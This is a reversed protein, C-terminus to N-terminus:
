KRETKGDYIAVLDIIKININNYFYKNNLNNYMYVLLEVIDDYKNHLKYYNDFNCEYKIKYNIQTNSWPLLGTYLHLLMYIISIIDDTKTYIYNDLHCTYSAYLKNGIFTQMERGHNYCSLGLDIICLDGYTDFIFNQPKVDRHLLNRLHFSKILTFLQNIIVIFEYKSVGDDIKQKLNKDLLEMVIYKYNEYIGIYKIEPINIKDKGKKLYLYMKIEHDLLKKSIEDTELKIAVKHKKIIHEAEYLTSFTSKTIIKIIKYKNALIYDTLIM